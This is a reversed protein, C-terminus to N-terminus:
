VYACMPLRIENSFIIAVNQEQETKRLVAASLLSFKVKNGFCDVYLNFSLMRDIKNM